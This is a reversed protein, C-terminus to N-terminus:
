RDPTEEGTDTESLARLRDEDLLRVAATGELEIAGSSKLRGFVRSVTEITLGCYDAIQARTMPLALPKTRLHREGARRKLDLLFTAIREVATKRSLLVEHDNSQALENSALSALRLAVDGNARMFADFAPRDFRCARVDTLAEADCSHSGSSEFGVFDGPLLFGFIHRRGDGLSRSLAITGETINFVHRARDGSGFLRERRKWTLRTALAYLATQRDPDLPQCVNFERAGCNACPSTVDGRKSCLEALSARAFWDPAVPRNM